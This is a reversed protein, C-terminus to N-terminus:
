STCLTCCRQKLVTLRLTLEFEEEAAACAEVGVLTPLAALTSIRDTEVAPGLRARERAFGFKEM